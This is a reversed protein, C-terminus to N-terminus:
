NKTDTAKGLILAEAERRLLQLELRTSWNSTSKGDEPYYREIYRIADRLCDRAQESKGLRHYTMALWLSDWGSGSGSPFKGAKTLRQLAAEFRSARYLAAGSLIRNWFDDSNGTFDSEALEACWAPDAGSNPALLCIKLAWHRDNPNKTKEFRKIMGACAERYGRADGLAARLLALDYLWKWNSPSLEAKVAQAYDSQAKEYQGMCAYSYGREHWAEWEDPRLEIVKTADAIAKDFEGLREHADARRLRLGHDAPEAGILRDLHRIALSWHGEQEYKAADERDEELSDVPFAVFLDPLQTQGIDGQLARRREEWTQQGLEHVDGADDLEWGTLVQVWQTIQDVDGKLPPPVEMLKARSNGVVLIAHGDPSFAPRDGVRYLMGPTQSGPGIPIGTATNWLQVGGGASATLFISGDPSFAVSTVSISNRYQYPRGILEGTATDWLRASRENSSTILTKGDASFAVSLIYDRVYPLVSHPKGLTFDWLQFTKDPRQILALRSDSSLAWTRFGGELESESVPRESVLKATTLDWFRLIKGERLWLLRGDDSINAFSSGRPEYRFLERISKGSLPERLHVTGDPDVTILQGDSSFIARLSGSWERIKKGATGDWLQYTRERKRKENPETGEILIKRGDPSFTGATTSIKTEIFREAYRTPNFEWLRATGDRSGTLFTRGDPSFAVDRIGNFHQPAGGIREGTAVRFLPASLGAAVLMARGDPSLAVSKIGAGQQLLPKGVPKGTATEWLGTAVGGLRTMWQGSDVAMIKGDPSFAARHLRDFEIRFIPGVYKGTAVEWLRCLTEHRTSSIERIITQSNPGFGLSRIPQGVPNGSLIEWLRGVEQPSKGATLLFKGDPSFAQFRGEYPIPKGIPKGTAIEWLHVKNGSNVLIRQGDPSFAVAHSAGEGGDWLSGIAEQHLLPAGLPQGTAVDWLRVTKDMSGTLAIKGDPSFAVATVSDDHKFIAKLPHMERQWAALNLRIVRELEANEAETALKLGRALWLMGRSVEGQECNNLGRDLALSAAVRKSEKLAAETQEQKEQLNAAAKTLDTATKSRHIAFTISLVSVALLAAATLGTTAALAPNRRCWRWLREGRGVPRALIPENKLFRRLDDAMERATAYRRAPVKALAKLCITELDRPIKDNLKRPPRPEEHLVQHLIMLKSGRFPLEGCLVEYLIVGLSYVDSRRDAQHSRGSAQEPSMYAPTGIIHGELTLTAEAEQRLALGFDMILPRGLRRPEPPNEAAPAAGQEVPPREYELMINGPKIDRHVLGREHAYDLAEAVTALLEAAERFTLRRVELFDRLPVGEIFDAVITPLGELMQVEHVPVIGPHRLQAAARAERHFRELEDASTLLGAHPIKLAVIRDLETDRAKWVAGFAGLGVRELLQFKGLPRMGSVTTTPQAERVRFSGGCAPCLVEDSRDDALQLPNHCHPCRLRTGRAALQQEAATSTATHPEAPPPATPPQTDLANVLRTFDLFAFRDRYDEARPREGARRRYDIDLLILEHVLAAREPEAVDDVYAEIRPRQDAAAATKWAAEFHDCAKDVRHVMSPTMAPDNPEPQDNM